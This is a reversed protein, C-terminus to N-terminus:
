ESKGKYVRNLNIKFKCSNSSGGFSAGANLKFGGKETVVLSTAKSNTKASFDYKGSEFNGTVSAGQSQASAQQNGFLRLYSMSNPDDFLLDIKSGAQEWEGTASQGVQLADDNSWEFTGDENFAITAALNKQAKFRQGHAGGVRCSVKASGGFKGTLNFTKGAVSEGAWAGESAMLALVVSGILSTKKM